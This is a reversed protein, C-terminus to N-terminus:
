RLNRFKYLVENIFEYLFEYFLSDSYFLTDNYNTLSFCSSLLQNKGDDITFKIYRFKNTDYNPTEFGSLSGRFVGIFYKKGVLRGKNFIIPFKDEFNKSLCVEYNYNNNTFIKEGNKYLIQYYNM